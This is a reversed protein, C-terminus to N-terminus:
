RLMFDACKQECGLVNSPDDHRMCEGFDCKVPASTSKRFRGGRKGVKDEEASPLAEIFHLEEDLGGCVAARGSRGTGWMRDISMSGPSARRGAIAARSPDCCLFVCV